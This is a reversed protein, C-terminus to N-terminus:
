GFIEELKEVLWTMMTDSLLAVAGVVLILILVTSVINSIGEESNKMALLRYAIKDTLKM